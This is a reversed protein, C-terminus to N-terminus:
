FHITVKTGILHKTEFDITFDAINCLHKVVPLGLGSGSAMKVAAPSRYFRDFVKDVESDPIGIGFDQVSLHDETIELIVKSNDLSYKLANSLLNKLITKIIFSDQEMMKIEIKSEISISKTKRLGEVEELVEDVLRKVNIREKKPKYLGLQAMTIYEIQQIIRELREVQKDLNWLTKIKEPDEEEEILQSVISKAASLPNRLEHVMLTSIDSKIEDIHKKESIDRLILLQENPIYTLSFFMWASKKPAFVKAEFQIKELSHVAEVLKSGKDFILLDFISSDLCEGFYDGAKSNVWTIRDVDLVFVIEDFWNMADLPLYRNQM